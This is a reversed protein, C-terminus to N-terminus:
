VVSCLLVRCLVVSCTLITSVVGVLASVEFFYAVREEGVLIVRGCLSKNAFKSKVGFIISEKFIFAEIRQFEEQWYLLIFLYINQIEIVVDVEDNSWLM